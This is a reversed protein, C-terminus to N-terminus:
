WSWSRAVKGGPFFSRTGVSCSPPATGSLMQINWSFPFDRWRDPMLGFNRLHWIQLRTVMSHCFVEWIVYSPPYDSHLAWTKPYQWLCSQKSPLTVLTICVCVERGVQKRVRKGKGLTRAMDEQQQEYHHRLLKVWYAPDTNEAEQKIIETPEEEKLCYTWIHNPLLLYDVQHAIICNEGSNIIGGGGCDFNEIILFIGTLINM